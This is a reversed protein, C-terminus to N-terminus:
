CLHVLFIIKHEIAGSIRCMAFTIIIKWNRCNNARKGWRVAWSICIEFFWVIFFCVQLYWKLGTYWFSHNCSSTRRVSPRFFHCIITPTGGLFFWYKSCLAVGKPIFFVITFCIGKDLSQHIPWIYVIDFNILSFISFLFVIAWSEM